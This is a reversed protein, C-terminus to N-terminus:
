WVKTVKYGATRFREVLGDKGSLHLAGVAIFAGGSALLSAAREAMLANRDLLLVRTFEDEAAREAESLGGVADAIPLIEAPRGERYLRLM